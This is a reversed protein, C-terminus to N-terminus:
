GKTAQKNWAATIRQWMLPCQQDPGFNAFQMRNLEGDQRRREPDRAYDVVARGMAEVDLYPVIMGGGGQLVEATGTAGEFCVIPKGMSGSEICVLPFPDERSTLVFIDFTEYVPRPDALEGVFDVVGRLGAHELDHDILPRDQPAVRGVWTFRIDMEPHNVRVWRAVQIFLDYGKRLSALGSGGVHFTARGQVPFAQGKMEPVIACEYQVEVIGSPVSWSDLLETRVLESAAWVSDVTSLREPLDPLDRQIVTGLEHIFVILTPRAMALEKVRVGVPISALSNALVVDFRKGALQALQMEKWEASTPVRAYGLMRLLWLGTRSALSREPLPPMVLEMYHDAVTRFEEALPGGKLALVDVGVEPHVARLWRAFHLVVLPAGTRSAEHTILLIRKMDAPVFSM